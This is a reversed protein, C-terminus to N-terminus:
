FECKYRDDASQLTFPSIRKLEPIPIPLICTMKLPGSYERGPLSGLHESRFSSNTCQVSQESACKRAQGTKRHQLQMALVELRRVYQYPMDSDYGEAGRCACEHCPHQVQPALEPLRGSAFSKSDAAVSSLQVGQPLPFYLRRLNQACNEFPSIALGSM